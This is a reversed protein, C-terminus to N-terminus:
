RSSRPLGGREDDAVKLAEFNVGVEGGGALADISEGEVVEVAVVDGGGARERRKFDEAGEEAVVVYETGFVGVSADGLFRGFEEAVEGFAEFAFVAVKACSALLDGVEEHAQEEAEERVGDAQERVADKAVHHLTVVAEAGAFEEAFELEEKFGHAFLVSDEPRM